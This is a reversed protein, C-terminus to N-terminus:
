PLQSGLSSPYFVNKLARANLNKSNDHCGPLFETFRPRAVATYTKYSLALSKKHAERFSAELHLLIFFNIFARANLSKSNDHCGPLSETFRPRAVATYTKYSLALSKKHAERFSAELHLLIFFRSLTQAKVITMGEKLNLSALDCCM